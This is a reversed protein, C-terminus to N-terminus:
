GLTKQSLTVKGSFWTSYVAGICGPIWCRMLKTIPREGVEIPVPPTAASPWIHIERVLKLLSSHFVPHIKGLLRPLQLEVMVLNIVRVIPFPGLYKPGLKWCPVKLKLYKTLLFVKEGMHFPKQPSRKKDAQVKQADAAKWLSCRGRLARLYALWAKGSHLGVGTATM